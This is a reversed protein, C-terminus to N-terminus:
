LVASSREVRDPARGAPTLHQNTFLLLHPANSYDSRRPRGRADTGIATRRSRTSAPSRITQLRPHEDRGGEDEAENETGGGEHAKPPRGSTLGVSCVRRARHGVATQTVRVRARGPRASLQVAGFGVKRCRQLLLFVEFELKSVGHVARGDGTAFRHAVVAREEREPVLGQRDGRVGDRKLRVDGSSRALGQVTAKKACLERVQRRGRTPQLRGLEERNM